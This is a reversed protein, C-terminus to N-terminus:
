WVVPHTKGTQVNIFGNPAEACPAVLVWRWPSCTLTAFILREPFGAYWRPHSYEFMWEVQEGERYLHQMEADLEAAPRATMLGGIEYRVTAVVKGERVLAWGGQQAAIQNVAQAMAADSSGIVWINHRDHAVSCGVATDPNRPGCGLWFMRSVGKGTFRDVIAFKTINRAPDRQVQGDRVPLDMTIFDDHWHFPRLLAAQVTDRGPPAAIAFDDATLAQPLNVSHTISPPREIEPVDALYTTGESTRRGDAWVEAIKLTAVDELLVIDAFRGPAISGVWPTLRMHRAPNITICQIAVEPAVGLEIATRANYDIAGLKLTHTASRDDTTFAIQSWDPLNKALLNPIVDQMFYQRLEIFIGRRLKEVIEDAYWAEHDGALGAAAFPNITALDRLGAGHGEVVGRGEFTARIMGWLREYSPNDPNCLAPWDMVEDLGATMLSAHFFGKQEDYGFWAGGREYITPPVASGPLPFIKLPSGHRRADLWFSLNDKGAVNSFEHSAECTWTNGHPIVLAAEWEPTLHTSEIHKHVEGFGPVASLPRKDVRTRVEGPFSGAPGTWAVRRGKIIIEQDDHWTRTHVDFLRGVRLATDAPRQGLGTLVLDQRIRIESAADLLLDASSDLTAVM